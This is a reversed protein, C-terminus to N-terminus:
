LLLLLLLTAPDASPPLARLRWEDDDDLAALRLVFPARAARPLFGGRLCIGNGVKKKQPHWNCVFSPFFGSLHFDNFHLLRSPHSEFSKVRPCVFFCILPEM